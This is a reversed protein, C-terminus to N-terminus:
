RPDGPALYPYPYLDGPDRYIAPGKIYSESYGISVGFHHAPDEYNIMMSGTKESYGKGVGYSLSFTGHVEGAPKGDSTRIQPRAALYSPPGLLVHAMRPTEYREVAADVRALEDAPLSTLGTVRREDDTLRQSFNKPAAPNANMSTRAGADRRVLADLAGLQDSNLRAIGAATREPPTLSQSFRVDDGDAFALTACALALVIALPKSM